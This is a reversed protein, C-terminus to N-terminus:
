FLYGLPKFELDTMFWGHIHHAIVGDGRAENLKKM